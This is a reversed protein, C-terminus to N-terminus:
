GAPKRDYRARVNRSPSSQAFPPVAASLSTLSREHSSSPSSRRAKVPSQAVVLARGGLQRGHRVDHDLPSSRPGRLPHEIEPAARAVRRQQRRRASRGHDSHIRRRAQELHRPRASDTLSEVDGEREALGPRDRDFAARDVDQDRHEAHDERGIGDCRRLLHGADGGRAAADDEGRPQGSARDALDNPHCALRRHRCEVSRGRRRGERPMVLARQRAKQRRMPEAHADFPEIM